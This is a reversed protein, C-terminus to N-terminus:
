VMDVKSEGKKNSSLIGRCSTVTSENPEGKEFNGRDRIFDNVAMQNERESVHANPIYVGEHLSLYNRNNLSPDYEKHNIKQM